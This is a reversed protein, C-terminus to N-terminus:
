GGAGGPTGDHADGLARYIGRLEAVMTRDRFRETFRERGTEGFRRRLEADDALRNIAGALEAVSKPPLLFGTEGEICVERAGDIDYSIVPKGGILAQPLVRALGERLSAHVVIDMAGILEPIRQPAVLGAFVFHDGLGARGIRQKLDDQLIGDGVFLFRVQPNHRVVESAADIVYEHGKLHFLRAIKGVVVHEDTFGFEARVANRPQPPHLFPEVEMGSYVTQFKERPAIGAAVYQETMADCVSVLKDCRHAAWRECRRYLEHAARTQYQHFPSGHITHVTPIRLKYAAARGLIGAKSSHTHVVQPQLERLLRLLERYSRWDRLPHIERRLDDIIRVDIDRREARQLLSGEPGLAPGTILTVDDGAEQQGEVTLLTNEQAGGLILRTIIHVVKMGTRTSESKSISSFVSHTM